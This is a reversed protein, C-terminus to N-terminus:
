RTCWGTARCACWSRTGAAIVVVVVVVVAAADNTIGRQRAVVCGPPPVAAYKALDLNRAIDRAHGRRQTAVVDLRVDSAAAMPALISRTLQLAQGSGGYPNVLVLVPKRTVGWALKSSPRAYSRVRARLRRSAVAGRVLLMAAYAAVVVAACSIYPHQAVTSATWAYAGEMTFLTRVLRRAM